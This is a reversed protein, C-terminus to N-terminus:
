YHQEHPDEYKEEAQRLKTVDEGIIIFGDPKNNEDFSYDIDWLVTNEKNELPIVTETKKISKGALNKTDKTIPCPFKAQKCLQLYNEGLIEKKQWQYIKLAAENIDLIEHELSLHILPCHLHKQLVDLNKKNQLWDM